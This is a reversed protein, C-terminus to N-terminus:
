MPKKLFYNPNNKLGQTMVDVFKNIPILSLNTYKKAMHLENVAGYKYLDKAALDFSFSYDNNANDQKRVFASYGYKITSDQGIVGTPFYKEFRYQVKFNQEIFHPMTNGSVVPRGFYLFGVQTSYWNSLISYVSKEGFASKGVNNLISKQNGLGGHSFLPHESRIVDNRKLIHKNIAGLNTPTTAPDFIGSTTYSYTPIILTIGLYLFIDLVSDLFSTHQEKNPILKGFERLDTYLYLVEYNEVGIELLSRKISNLNV